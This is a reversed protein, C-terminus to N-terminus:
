RVWFVLPSFSFAFTFSTHSNHSPVYWIHRAISEGTDERIMMAPKGDELKFGRFIVPPIPDVKSDFTASLSRLVTGEVNQGRNIGLVDALSYPTFDSSSPRVSLRYPLEASRRDGPEKAMPTIGVFDSAMSIKQSKSMNKQHVPMSIELQRMECRWQLSQVSVVNGHNDHIAAEIPIDCWLFNDGLDNVITIKATLICHGPRPQTIRPPKLFRIYHM